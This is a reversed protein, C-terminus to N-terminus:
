RTAKNCRGSSTDSKPVVEYGLLQVLAYFGGFVYMTYNACGFRALDLSFLNSIWHRVHFFTM